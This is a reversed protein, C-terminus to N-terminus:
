NARAGILRVYDAAALTEPRAAPAIAAARLLLEAEDPSIGFLERVVRKMQKRRMGFAAQVLRRAPAEEDPPLLPPDLPTLRVIASDVAPRPHFAGAPVRGISEVRSVFGVNM